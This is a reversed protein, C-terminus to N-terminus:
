RNRKRFRSRRTPKRTSVRDATVTGEVFWPAGPVASKVWVTPSSPAVPGATVGGNAGGTTLTSTAATSTNSGGLDLGGWVTGGTTWGGLTNTTDTTATGSGLDVATGNETPSTTAAVEPDEDPSTSAATKGKDDSDMNVWLVWAISGFVPKNTGTTQSETVCLEDKEVEYYGIEQTGTSGGHFGTSQKTTGSISVEEIIHGNLCNGTIAYSMKYSLTVSNGNADTLAQNQIIAARIQNTSYNGGIEQGLKVIYEEPLKAVRLDAATDDLKVEEKAPRGTSPDIVYEQVRNLQLGWRIGYSGKQAAATHTVALGYVHETELNELHGIKELIKGEAAVLVAADVGLESSLIGNFVESRSRSNFHLTWRTFDKLNMIRDQDEGKLRSKITSTNDDQRFGVTEDDVRFANLVAERLWKMGEADASDITNIIGPNHSELAALIQPDKLALLLKDWLAKESVAIKQLEEGSFGGEQMKQLNRQHALEMKQFKQLNTNGKLTNINIVYDIATIAQIYGIPPMNSPVRTYPIDEFREVAQVEPTAAQLQVWRGTIGRADLEARTGQASPITRSGTQVSQTIGETAKGEFLLETSADTSIDDSIINVVRSEWDNSRHTNINVRKGRLDGSIAYGDWMKQVQISSDGYVGKIAPIYLANFENNEGVQAMYWNVSELSTVEETVIQEAATWVIDNGAEFRSYIKEGHLTPIPFCGALYSIGFGTLKYGAANSHLTSAYDEMYGAQISAIYVMKQTDTTLNASGRKYLGQIQDYMERDAPVKGEYTASTFDDGDKIELLVQTLRVDMQNVMEAIGMSTKESAKSVVLGASLKGTFNVFGSVAVKWKVNKDFLSDMEITPKIIEGSVTVFPVFKIPGTLTSWVGADVRVNRGAVQGETITRSLAIGPVPNGDADQAVWVSANHILGRTAGRVDFSAGVMSRDGLVMGVAELKVADIARSKDAPSLHALRSDTLLIQDVEEMIENASDQQMELQLDVYEAVKEPSDVLVGLKHGSALTTALISQFKQRASFFNNLDLGTLGLNTLLNNFGNPTDALLERLQAEGAYHVKEIGIVMDGDFDLLASTKQNRPATNMKDYYELVKYITDREKKGFQMGNKEYGADRMVKKFQDKGPNEAYETPLSWFLDNLEDKSLDWLIEEMIVISTHDQLVEKSVGFMVANMDATNSYTTEAFVTKEVESVGILHEQQATQAESVVAASEGTFANLKNVVETMPVGTALTYQHLGVAQLVKDLAAKDKSLVVEGRNLMQDEWMRSGGDKTTDLKNLEEIIKKSNESIYSAADPADNIEWATAGEGFQATFMGQFMRKYVQLM